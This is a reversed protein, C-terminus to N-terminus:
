RIVPLTPSASSAHWSAHSRHCPPRGSGVDVVGSAYRTRVTVRRAMSRSREACWRLSVSRPGTGGRAARSRRGDRRLRLRRGLEGVREREREQHQEVLERRDLARHQQQVVHEAVREVSIPPSPRGTRGVDHRCIPWGCAACAAALRALQRRGRRARRRARAARRDLLEERRDGRPSMASAQHCSRAGSTTCARGVAAGVTVRCSARHDAGVADARRRTFMRRLRTGRSRRRRGRDRVHVALAPRRTGHDVAPASSRATTRTRAGVAPHVADVALEVRLLETM